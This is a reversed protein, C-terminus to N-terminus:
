QSCFGPQVQGRSGTWLDIAGPDESAPILEFHGALKWLSAAIVSSAQMLALHVDKSSLVQFLAADVRHPLDIHILDISLKLGVLRFDVILPLLDLGFSLVWPRHPVVIGEHM